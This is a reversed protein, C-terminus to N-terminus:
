SYKAEIEAKKEEYWAKSKGLPDEEGLIEYESKKHAAQALLAKLEDNKKKEKEVASMKKIIRNEADKMVGARDEEDLEDFQKAGSSPEVGIELIKEEVWVGNKKAFYRKGKHNPIKSGDSKLLENEKLGEFAEMRGDDPDIISEGNKPEFFTIHQSHLEKSKENVAQMSTNMAANLSDLEATLSELHAKKAETAEM